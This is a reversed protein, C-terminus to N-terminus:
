LLNNDVPGNTPPDHPPLRHWLWWVLYFLAAIIAVAVAFWEWPTLDRM